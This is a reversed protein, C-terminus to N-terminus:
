SGAGTPRQRKLRLFSALGYSAHTPPAKLRTAQELGARLQTALRQVTRLLKCAARQM